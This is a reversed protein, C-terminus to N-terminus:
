SVKTARELYGRTKVTRRYKEQNIVIKKKLCNKKRKKIVIQNQNYLMYSDLTVLINESDRLEQHNM